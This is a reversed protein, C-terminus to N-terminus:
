ERPINQPTKTGKNIRIMEKLAADFSAHGDKLLADKHIQAVYPKWRSWYKRVADADLNARSAVSAWAEEVSRAGNDFIEFFVAMAVKLHRAGKRPRGSGTKGSLVMAAKHSNALRALMVSAWLRERGNLEEKRAIKLAVKWAVDATFDPDGNLSEIMQLQLLSGLGSSEAEDIAERQVRQWEEPSLNSNKNRLM